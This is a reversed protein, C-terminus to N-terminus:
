AQTEEKKFCLEDILYAIANEENTPAIFDAAEKVIPEANGVACGLGALRIMSIDNEQDGIAILDERKLGFKKLLSACANGKTAEPMNVELLSPDSVVVNFRDGLHEKVVSRLKIINEPHDMVLIKYVGGEKGRLFESLPMHTEKATVSCAKEYWLVPETREVVFLDNGQYIHLHLNMGELYTLVELAAEKPIPKEDVIEGTEIDATIAGQFAMVYGKLGIKRVIPLISALMRGTCVTFIGGAARYREISEVNEKAVTRDNRALTGDYDSILIKYNVSM